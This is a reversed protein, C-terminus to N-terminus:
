ECFKRFLWLLTIFTGSGPIMTVDCWTSSGNVNDSGGQSASAECSGRWMAMTMPYLSRQKLFDSIVPVMRVVTHKGGPIKKNTVSVELKFNPSLIKGAQLCWIYMGLGQSCPFAFFCKKKVKISIPSSQYPLLNRLYLLINLPPRFSYCINM